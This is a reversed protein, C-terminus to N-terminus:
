LVVLLVALHPILKKNVILSMNNIIIYNYETKYDKSKNLLNLENKFM